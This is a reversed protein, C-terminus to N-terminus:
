NGLFTISVQSSSVLLIAASVEIEEVQRERVKEFWTWKSFTVGQSSM